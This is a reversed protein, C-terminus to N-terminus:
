MKLDGLDKRAECGSGRDYEPGPVVSYPLPAHTCVLGRTLVSEATMM